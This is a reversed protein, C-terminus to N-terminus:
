APRVRNAVHEAPDYHKQRQEYAPFEAPVASYRQPAVSHKRPRGRGRKFSVIVGEDFIQGGWVGIPERRELAGALCADLVPCTACLQKARELDAPREAFWLDPDNVQCPLDIPARRGIAPADTLVSTM